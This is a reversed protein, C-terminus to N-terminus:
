GAAGLLAARPVPIGAAMRSPSSRVVMVPCPAHGALEHVLRARGAGPPDGAGAGVVLLDVRDGTAWARVADAAPGNLWVAEAGPIGRATARLLERGAAAPDDRRLVAAVGLPGSGPPPGVDVVSLRGGSARWLTIAAGLAIAGCSSGDILCGIHAYPAGV